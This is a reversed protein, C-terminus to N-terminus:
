VPTITVPIGNFVANGSLVDIRSADTLINANVGAHARAVSQSSGAHGWGHPLSVVGPMIKDNPEVPVTLKGSASEIAALEGLGLRAVDDPHIHLTCTNSGGVLAAVNHMWSNNSRLHRRGILVVDPRADSLGTVLRTTDDLLQQPALEVRGTATRLVGPLRPRLPGLDIGHPNDLLVQLNLGDPALEVPERDPNWTGYPGLRLMMDIRQETSDAGALEARHDGLGAKHLTGAIILEDVAAVPDSEPEPQGSLSLALRALIEPESPRDPALPLLPRSYRAYNRVAFQLLAFDYHPAQLSRPPPLIVDAHRTTENLYRDVSVMFELGALAEGLRAGAPASLVPNGAVTVLMRVQGSGPTGIEDALTAIPFEGMTEPFERVRSTWRGLRFPRTRVIGLAAPTAFMAGGPRDLNGTLVNIVDVLWQTLTGFEATCTGIRAYVAAAPAAALERALRVVTEAPIGTRAQVAEATFPIASSRIQEVGDIGIHSRGLRTDVLDEAFLVHVIGFLLYPDSGPRIFLHEDALDATRTRRPDVVVLRGGRKRLAKLRGPYDPATCLSGNSELPNAGLMLLYGTRDLDPVAVTLPDGFMLGSSVQKPMQDATSASFLNRTSLARILAPVYLAGAVTHANPNGLYLAASRPGYENVVAPAREAILAFAEPWTATRWTDTARDRIIPETLRDPDFDLAGLSAGKPCIFGRSFPDDRDGRVRTVRDDADLTIELGCVAECLPCTRYATRSDPTVSTM